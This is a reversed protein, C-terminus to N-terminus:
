TEGSYMPIPNNAKVNLRNYMTIDKTCHNIGSKIHSLLSEPITIQCNQKPLKNNLKNKKTSVTLGLKDLLTRQFIYNNKKEKGKIHIPLNGNCLQLPLFFTNKFFWRRNQLHIEM